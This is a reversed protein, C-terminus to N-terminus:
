GALMVSQINSLVEASTIDESTYINAFNAQMLASFEEKGEVELLEALTMLAEGEGTAMNEAVQEMNNELFVAAFEVPTSTDCGLTGSTMGFTQNGSTGNTTAALIHPVPGEQGEWIQAGLGCGPNAAAFMPSALLSVVILGKISKM